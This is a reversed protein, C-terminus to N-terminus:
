LLSNSRSSVRRMADDIFSTKLRQYEKRCGSAQAVCRAKVESYAAANEPSSLLWDRFALHRRWQACDLELVHLHHTRIPAGLVFYHRRPIGYEGRYQYGLAELRPVLAHGDDYSRIAIAIDLIPKARMGPVATSGVHEVHLASAALVSSLRYSESSFLEAWEPGVHVLRLDGVRLSVDSADLSM